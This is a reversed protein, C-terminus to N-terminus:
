ITVNFLLKINLNTITDASIVNYQLNTNYMTVTKTWGTLTTDTVNNSNSLVIGGNSIDTGNDLIQVTANGVKDAVMSARIITGNFGLSINSAKMGTTIPLSQGDIIYNISPHYNTNGIGASTQSTNDPFVIGGLLSIWGFQVLNFGNGFFDFNLVNFGNNNYPPPNCTSIGTWGAPCTLNVTWTIMQTSGNANSGIVSINHVGASNILYNQNDNLNLTDHDTEVSDKFWSWNITQNATANFKINSSRTFNIALSANNTKTNSYSTIIPSPLGFTYLLGTNSGIYVRGDRGIAPSSLIADTTDYRWNLTGNPYLSYIFGDVSGFYIQNDSSIAVSSRVAAGTLYRWKLFGNTSNLAYLYNDGSGIYITGDQGIAPSSEEIFDGTTFDWKETGNPYLAYVKNDESGFYITDDSGIAPTSVVHGGVTFVWKQTGNPYVSFLKSGDNGFYINGSNDISVSSEIFAGSDFVWKITGNPYIAQMGNTSNGIYITGDNAEAPSPNLVFGTASTNWKETGNNLYLAWLKGNISTAYITNITNNILPTGRISDGTNFKWIQGGSSNIAYIYGNESGVYINKNIDIVPSSVIAAGTTFSWKLTGDTGSKFNSLGTSKNDHHFKYWDDLTASTPVVLLLGIVLLFIFPLLKIKM